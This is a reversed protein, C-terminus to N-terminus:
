IRQRKRNLRDVLEGEGLMATEEQPRKRRQPTKYGCFLNVEEATFKKTSVPYRDEEFVFKPEVLPWNEILHVGIVETNGNSSEGGVAETAAQASQEPSIGCFSDIYCLPTSSSLPPEGTSLTSMARRQNVVEWARIIRLLNMASIRDDDKPQLMAVCWELPHFREDLDKSALKDATLAESSATRITTTRESNLTNLYLRGVLMFIWQMTRTYAAHYTSTNNPYSRYRTWDNLRQGCLVTMIELYVCGLSFIDAKRGRPLENAVEPACYMPTKESPGMSMSAIHDYDEDTEICVKLDKVAFARSINFDAYLINGDKILLNAPKIDKHRIGQTHLYSLGAALCGLWSALIKTEGPNSAPNSALYKALDTDAVPSMIIGIQTETRYTTVFKVIHHHSLRQIIKIENIAHQLQEKKIGKKRSSWFLKRAYLRVDKPNDPSAYSVVDVSGASGNGLIRVQQYANSNSSYQPYASSIYRDDSSKASPVAILLNGFVDNLSTTPMIGCDVSDIKEEPEDPFHAKRPVRDIGIAGRSKLMARIIERSGKGSCYRLALSLADSDRGKYNIDAGKELLFKIMEELGYRVAETLASGQRDDIDAGYQLLLDISTKADEFTLEFRTRALRGYAEVVRAILSTKNRVFMRKGAGSDLLLQIMAPRGIEAAAELPSETEGHCITNVNAGHEILFKTMDLSRSRVAYQLATGSEAGKDDVMAGRKIVNLAADMWRVLDQERLSRAIGALVGGWEHPLRIVRAGRELLLEIIEIQGMFAALQIATGKGNSKWFEVSDNVGEIDIDAGRDLLLQVVDVARFDDDYEQETDRRAKRSVAAHLVSGCEGGRANINAGLDLLRLITDKNCRNVAAQLASGLKGGDNNVDAGLDLLDHVLGGMPAYNGKRNNSSAALALCSGFPLAPQNLNASRLLLFDVFDTQGCQIATQLASGYKPHYLDLQAGHAVLMEGIVVDGERAAAQLPNFSFHSNFQCNPDAGAELLFKVVEKKTSHTEKHGFYSSIDFETSEIAAQLATSHASVPNLVAGHDLLIRCIRLYGSEAAAELASRAQPCETRTEVDIGRQLMLWVTQANGLQACEVFSFKDRVDKGSNLTNTLKRREIATFYLESSIDSPGESTTTPIKADQPHLTTEGSPAASDKM